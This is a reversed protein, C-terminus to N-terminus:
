HDPCSTIKLMTCKAFNALDMKYKWLIVVLAIKKKNIEPSGHISGKLKRRSFRLGLDIGKNQLAVSMLIKRLLILDHSQESISNWVHFIFFFFQSSVFFLYHLKLPVVFLWGLLHNEPGSRWTLFLPFSGRLWHFILWWNTPM